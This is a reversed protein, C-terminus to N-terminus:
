RHAVRIQEEFGEPAEAHPGQVHYTHCQTCSAGAADDRHCSACLERDITAFRSFFETDSGEAYAELYDGERVLAHCSVCSSFDRQSMHASHSFRTFPDVAGASSAWNITATGDPRHDISHCKICAGPATPATLTTFLPGGRIDLGPM